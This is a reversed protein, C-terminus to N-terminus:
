ILKFFSHNIMRHFYQDMQAATKEKGRQVWWTGLASTVSAYFEAVVELPVDFEGEEQSYKQLDVKLSEKIRKELLASFMNDDKQSEIITTFLKHNKTNSMMEFPYQIRDILPILNLEDQLQQFGINLLDYKDQFHKYFTTRHVLAQECIQNVTISKLPLREVLMLYLLAEWLLKHTRRIRLDLKKDKM